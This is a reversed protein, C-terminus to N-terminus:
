RWLNKGKMARVTNRLAKFEESYATNDKVAMHHCIKTVHTRANQINTHVKKLERQTEVVKKQSAAYLERSRYNKEADTMDIPAANALALAEKM